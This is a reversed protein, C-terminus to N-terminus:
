LDDPMVQHEGFAEAPAKESKPFRDKQIGSIWRILVRKPNLSAGRGCPPAERFPFKM